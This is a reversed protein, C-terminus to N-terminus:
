HGRSNYESFLKEIADKYHSFLFKSIQMPVNSADVFDEDSQQASSFSFAIKSAFLRSEVELSSLRSHYESSSLDNIKRPDGLVFTKYQGVLSEIFLLAEKRFQDDNSKFEYSIGRAALRTIAKNREAIAEEVWTYKQDDISERVATADPLQSDPELLIAGLFADKLDGTTSVYRHQWANGDAENETAPMLSGADYVVLVFAKGRPNASVYDEVRYGAVFTGAGLDGPNKGATEIVNHLIFDNLNRQHRDIGIFRWNLLAHKEFWQPYQQIMKERLPALLIRQKEPMADFRQTLREIVEVIGTTQGVYRIKDARSIEDSVALLAKTENPSFSLFPLNDLSEDKRVEPEVSFTQWGKDETMYLKKIRLISM